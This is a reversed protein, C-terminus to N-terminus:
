SASQSVKQNTPKDTPSAPTSVSSDASTDTTSTDDSPATTVPEAQEEQQHSVSVVVTDLHDQIEIKSRDIKLDSIKVVDGVQKLISIDIQISEPLDTPLAEVRVESLTQIISANFEKVAPSEGVLVLPIEAEIKEKLNVQRLDVHIITDSTPHYQVDTILVPRDKEEKDITLYVVQTEGANELVPLFSKHDIQVTQSELGKGFVTAPIYGKKRLTKVQRGTILRKNVSLTIKQNM